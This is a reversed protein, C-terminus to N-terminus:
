CDEPAVTDLPRVNVAQAEQARFAAPVPSGSRHQSRAQGAKRVEDQGGYGEPTYQAWQGHLAGAQTEPRRTDERGRRGKSKEWRNRRRSFRIRSRWRHSPAARGTREVAEDWSRFPAHVKARIWRHPAAKPNSCPNLTTPRSPGREIGIFPAPPPRQNDNPAGIATRPLPAPRPRRSLM